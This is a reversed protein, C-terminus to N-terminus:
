KGGVMIIQMCGMEVLELELANTTKYVCAWVNMCGSINMGVIYKGM